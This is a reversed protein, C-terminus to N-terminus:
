VFWTVKGGYYGLPVLAVTLMAFWPPYYYPLFDFVGLGDKQKDWGYEHQVRTQLDVDYPSQGSLVIKGTAWYCIYDPCLHEPPAVDRGFWALFITALVLAMLWAYPRLASLTSREPVLRNM